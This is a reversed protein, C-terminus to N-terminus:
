LNELQKVSSSTSTRQNLNVFLTRHLCLHSGPRWAGLEPSKRRDWAAEKYPHLSQRVDKQKMYDDIWQSINVVIVVRIPVLSIVFFMSKKLYYIKTFTHTHTNPPPSLLSLFCLVCCFCMRLINQLTM